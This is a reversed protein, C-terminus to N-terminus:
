KYGATRARASRFSRIMLTELLDTFKRTPFNADLNSIVSERGRGIQRPMGSPDAATRDLCCRDEEQGRARGWASSLKCVSAWSLSLADLIDSCLADMIDSGLCCPLSAPCTAGM